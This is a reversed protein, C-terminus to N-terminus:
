RTAEQRRKLAEAYGDPPSLYVASVAPHSAARRSTSIYDWFEARFAQMAILAETHDQPPTLGQAVRLRKLPEDYPDPLVDLQVSGYGQLARGVANRDRTANEAALRSAAHELSEGLIAACYRCGRPGGCQTYDHHPDITM